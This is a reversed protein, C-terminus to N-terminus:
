YSRRVSLVGNGEIAEIANEIINSFATVIQGEDCRVLPLEHAFYRNIKIEQPLTNEYKKLIEDLLGNIDVLTFKPTEISLVRMFRDTIKRLREVEELVSGVYGDIIDAKQGFKKKCLQNMRQLTLNITSLPNKIEHALRQAFGSWAIINKATMEATRDLVIVLTESAVKIVYINLLKENYRIEIAKKDIYEEILKKMEATEIFRILDDKTEGVIKRIYYNYYTIKNSRNLILVGSPTEDLFKHVRNVYVNNKYILFALASALLIM